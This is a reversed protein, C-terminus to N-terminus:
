SGLASFGSNLLIEEAEAGQLYRLFDEAFAGQGAVTAAPYVIPPHANEPFVGVVGVRPEAAADSAYVVGLPAEGLAVLALAARVNDTQAIRDEVGPWLGLSILAAKGYVGAPVTEVMAMALRSEGILEMLPFQATLPASAQGGPGVLVLRNGILDFRSEREILDDAALADMWEVSASIFVDAPAGFSIQRALTSSAAASIVVDRGSQASYRQGIETLATKLSAAAFVTVADSRVLTPAAVLPAAAVLRLLLRFLNSRVGM